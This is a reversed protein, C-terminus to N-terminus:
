PKFRLFATATQGFRVRDSLRGQRSGRAAQERFNPASALAGLATGCRGSCGASPGPDGFRSTWMSAFQGDTMDSTGGNRTVAKSGVVAPAPANPNM